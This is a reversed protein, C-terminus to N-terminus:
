SFIFNQPLLHTPLVTPEDDMGYQQLLSPTVQFRSIRDPLINIVGPIHRSRLYINLDVLLLVLPRVIAMVDSNKSSQKNLIATVASNDCHFVINSNRLLGGFVHILVFIPYLELFTIHYKQWSAPYPAQLWKSGYCAGFGLKSADSVMHITASDAIQLARFYTIGNYRTLLDLWTLLDRKVSNTIRIFFYPKSVTCLLDILRRLFPRAPVVSAAFNLKGILSELDRKKIKSHLTANRIDESYQELKDRPLRAVRLKTDLEVGLFITNTSPATTKEPAMPVGIDACIHLLMQLHAACTAYDESMLFFDDLMHVCHVNPAQADLIAHIATSFTEFIRCSSGCGQPLARDYYYKSKFCMGLKPYDAPRVPILRFADAVDTKATYSGFPLSLLVRIADGVSAYRVSKLEEPINANVSSGDYPHSLNHLLRYKNFSKKPRINLPSIHFPSFPPEDFPGMIRGLRIEKELKDAVIDEHSLVIHSNKGFSDEVEALHGISFGHTFGEVLYKTINPDYGINNLHHQLRVAKVPTPLAQHALNSTRHQIPRQNKVRGPDGPPLTTSDAKM